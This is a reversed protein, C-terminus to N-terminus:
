SGKNQLYTEIRWLAQQLGRLAESQAESRANIQLVTGELKALEESNPMHELHTEIEALREAHLSITRKLDGGLREVAVSADEGPKRLWVVVTLGINWLISLVTLAQPLTLDPM